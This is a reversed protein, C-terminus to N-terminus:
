SLKSVHTLAYPCIYIPLYDSVSEIFNHLYFLSPGVALQQYMGSKIIKVLSFIASFTFCVITLLWTYTVSFQYTSVFNFYM